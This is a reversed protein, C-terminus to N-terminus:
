DFGAVTSVKGSPTIKRISNRALDTVYIFGRVDVTIGYPVTFLAATGKGDSNGVQLPSGAITTVERKQSIKRILHNASDAVYINGLKDLAIGAPAYFKAASGIGDNSGLQRATGAITSIVGTTSIKRITANSADTVYINGIPDVAIGSLGNFRALDIPGDMATDNLNTPHQLTPYKGAITSVVGNLSLKRIIAGDIFYLNGIADLAMASPNDLRATARDGDVYGHQHPVGAITSVYGEPTIKRITQNFSDSVYIVDRSDIAMGDPKNFKANLTLGDVNGSINLAGAYISVLGNTSIKRIVDNKTDAIYIDGYKGVVISSPKNLGGVTSGSLPPTLSTVASNEESRALCVFSISYILLLLGHFGIIRRIHYKFSKQM